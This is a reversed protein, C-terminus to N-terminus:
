FSFAGFSLFDLFTFTIRHIIQSVNFIRTLTAFDPSLKAKSIIHLKAYEHM